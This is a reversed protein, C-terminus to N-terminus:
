RGAVAREIAQMLREPENTGLDFQRGDRTRIRVVDLGSVLYATGDPTRRLGWGRSASSRARSVGEIDRVNVSGHILGATFHWRVAGARVDVTLSSFVITVITVGIAVVTVLALVGTRAAGPAQSGAISRYGLALIVMGAVYAGLIVPSVQTHHYAGSSDPM